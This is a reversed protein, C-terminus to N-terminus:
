SSAATRADHPAQQSASLGALVAHVAEVLVDEADATYVAPTGVFKHWNYRPTPGDVEVSRRAPLYGGYGNAYCILCLGPYQAALELKLRLGIEAFVECPLAVLTAVDGLRLAQVEVRLSRPLTGADMQALMAQAWVNGAQPYEPQELERLVEDRTPPDGVPLECWVSGVRLDAVPLTQTRELTEQAERGLQEGYRRADALDGYNFQVGHEDVFAIKLDGSAANTFSASLGPYRQELYDRVIGPYDASYRRTKGMAMVSAHAAFNVMAAVPTGAPSDVRLVAVSNDTPADWAVGWHAGTATEVWRNVALGCLGKGLGVHAPQRAQWASAVAEVLREVVLDVYAQDVQPTLWKLPQPGSHTHSAGFMINPAAIGTAQAIAARTREVLDAGLVVLDFGVLAAATDGCEFALAKAVLPSGTGDQIRLDPDGTMPMLDAQGAGVLLRTQM